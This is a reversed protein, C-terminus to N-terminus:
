DNFNNKYYNKAFNVVLERALKSISIGMKDCLSKILMKQESSLRFHIDCYKDFLYM